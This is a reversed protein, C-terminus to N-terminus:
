EPRGADGRVRRWGSRGVTDTERHWSTLRRAVEQLMLDGIHHGLTDNLTKFDDLDIFLLARKRHSRGTAILSHTLCEFLLRRNALGTLPDFFALGRM